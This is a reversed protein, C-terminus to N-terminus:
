AWQEPSDPWAIRTAGSYDEFLEGEGDEPCDPGNGIYTLAWQLAHQLHEIQQAEPWTDRPSLQDCIEDNPTEMIRRIVGKGTGQSHENRDHRSAGERQEGAPDRELAGSQDNAKGRIERRVLSRVRSM